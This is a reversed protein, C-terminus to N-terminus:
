AKLKRMIFRRTMSLLKLQVNPTVKGLECEWVVLTRWGAKNLQRESKKARKKNGTIKDKWFVTNSKPWKFYRCNHGHWFCGHVFIAAKYKPLVIDPHGPLNSVHLRYRFGMRHLAKRLTLEPKTNKSRIGGM